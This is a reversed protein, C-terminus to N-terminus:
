AAREGEDGEFFATLAELDARATKHGPHVWLTHCLLRLADEVQGMEFCASGAMYWLAPHHPSFALGRLSRSLAEREEGRNLAAEAGRLMGDAAEPDPAPDLGPIHFELANVVARLSHSVFPELQDEESRTIRDALQELALAIEPISPRPSQSM